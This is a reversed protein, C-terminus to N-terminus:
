NKARRCMFASGIALVMLSVIGPEPVAGGGSLGSGAGPLGFNQRWTNYGAPDGGFGGPNKRWMVYDAADVKGDGNYDGALGVPGVTIIGTGSFYEDNKNTAASLTSGYTGNGQAAAGLVLSGVVDNIGGALNFFGTDAVGATGGGLLTLKATDLIANAVGASIAANGANVTVDGGGFTAASGSGTLTGGDVIAGGTFTNAGSLVTTGGSAVRRFSGNGSIAGSWTQTGSTNTSQLVTQRTGTGSIVVPGAYNFGTRSFSPRYVIGQSAGNHRFTLTGGTWDFADGSLNSTFDFIVGAPDTSNTLGTTTSAYDIESDSTVRVPNTVTFSRTTTPTSGNYTLKGGSLNVRGNGDGIRSFGVNASNTQYRVNLAGQQITTEGRYSNGKSGLTLTGPGSKTFGRINGDDIIDGAFIFTGSTKAGDVITDGSVTIVPNDAKLTTTSAGNTGNLQTDSAGNNDYTFNGSIDINGVSLNITAGTRKFTPGTAVNNPNITL